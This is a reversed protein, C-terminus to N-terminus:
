KKFVAALKGTVTDWAKLGDATTALVRRGDRSFVASSTWDKVEVFKKDQNGFQADLVVLRGAVVEAPLRTVYHTENAAVALVKGDPSFAISRPSWRQFQSEQFTWVCKGTVLECYKIRRHYGLAAFKGDPSIAFCSVSDDEQSALSFKEEASNVDWLRLDWDDTKIPSATRRGAGVGALKGNRSFGVPGFGTPCDELLTRVLRRDFTRWMRVAKLFVPPRDMNEDVIKHISTSLALKGDPSLAVAVVPESIPFTAIENGSVLDWLTLTDTHKRGPRIGDGRGMLVTNGDDSFAYHAITDSTRSPLSVERILRRSDLDWVQINGFADGTLARAGDASVAVTRLLPSVRQVTDRGQQSGSNCALCAETAVRDNAPPQGAALGCVLFGFHAWVRM